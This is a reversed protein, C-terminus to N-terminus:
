KRAPFRDLIEGVQACKELLQIYASYATEFTLLSCHELHIRQGNVLLTVEGKSNKFRQEVQGIELEGPSHIKWHCIWDGVAPIWTEPTTTM